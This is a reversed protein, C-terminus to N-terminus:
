VLVAAGKIQAFLSLGAKAGLSVQSLRTIRALLPTGGLDVQLLVASPSAAVLDTVTVPFINLISSNGAQTLALSVDSAPIRLRVESGVVAAILPVRFEFDGVSIHTLQWEEDHRMIVGRLVSEADAAHALPLDLRTLLHGTAGTAIIRGAEILLMEDALYAVEDLSHSVYLIPIGMKEAIRRLLPYITRKTTEDLSALPEDMLLLSPSSLIARALAVLQREGGSLTMVRRQLLSGIGMLAVTEALHFQRKGAPRRAYGYLLNKEVSLHAFLDSEQFIYALGRRHTPLFEKERQWIADGVSLFGRAAELGALVRLLTTKGSGTRGFVATIGRLPIDIQVDLNFAGRAFQLGAQLRM